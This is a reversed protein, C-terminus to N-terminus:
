EIVVGGDWLKWFDHGNVGYIMVDNWTNELTVNRDYKLVDSFNCSLMLDSGLHRLRGDEHGLM